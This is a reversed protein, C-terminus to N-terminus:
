YHLCTLNNGISYIYTFIDYIGNLDLTYAIDSLSDHNIVSNNIWQLKYVSIDDQIDNCLKTYEDDPLIEYKKCIYAILYKARQTFIDSNGTVNTTINNM